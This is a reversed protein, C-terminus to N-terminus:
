NKITFFFIIIILMVHHIPLHPCLKVLSGQTGCLEGTKKVVLSLFDAFDPLVLFHWHRVNIHGPMQEWTQAKEWNGAM